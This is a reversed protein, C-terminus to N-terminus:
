SEVVAIVDMEPVLMPGDDGGFRDIKQAMNYGSIIVRDGQKVEPEVRRGSELVKGPGVALVKGITYSAKANKPIIIGGKSTAEVPEPQVLVMDHIPRVTQQQEM